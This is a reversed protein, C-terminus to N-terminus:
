NINKHHRLLVVIYLSSIIEFFALTRPNLRRGTMNLAEIRVSQTLPLGQAIKHVVHLLINTHPQIDQSKTM